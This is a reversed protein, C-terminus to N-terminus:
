EAESAAREARQSGIRSYAGDCFHKTLSSVGRCLWFGIM